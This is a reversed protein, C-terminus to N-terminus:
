ANLGVVIFCAVILQILSSLLWTLIMALSVPFISFTMLIGSLSFIVWLPLAFRTARQAVTVGGWSAKTRMWLWALGIGLLLPQVLFVWMVPDSWSRFLVLNQYEQAVSPVAANLVVGAGMGAAVIAVAAILGHAIVKKM